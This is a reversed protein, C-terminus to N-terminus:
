TQRVVFGQPHGSGDLYSGGAACHRASTCSVSAIAAGGRLNLAALGPVQQAKGWRGNTETVVFASFSGDATKYSGGAACNGASTCSVSNVRANGSTTLATGPVKQVERWRGNKQTVVFAVQPHNTGGYDYYGGAACNGASTCSMSTLGAFSSKYKNLATTGPLEEANGWRGRRETVVFVKTGGNRYFTGGASCNGASTCSVSTVLALGLPGKNLPASGPVERANGWRGNKETVVLAQLDYTGDTYYGGAGCDGASTCSVAGVQAFQGQNLAATGPVERAEGWHGNKETAVFAEFAGSGARYYGGASCSGSRTCSVALLRAAEGRNLIALGPLEAAKGWRGNRGAAVVFAQSSGSADTYDGGAACGGGPACSLSDVQGSEVASRASLGPVQEARGWRGNREIAVFGQSDGSADTYSGAAGCNGASWCSVLSVGAAGGANLVAEGPVREAKGWGGMAAPRRGDVARQGAASASAQAPPTVMALGAVAVVAAVLALQGLRTTWSRPM